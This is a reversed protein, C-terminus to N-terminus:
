SSQTQLAQRIESLLNVLYDWFAGPLRQMEPSGYESILFHAVIALIAFTVLSKGTNKVGRVFRSPPEPRPPLEFTPLRLAPETRETQDGFGPGLRRKILEILGDIDHEWSRDNIVYAQQRSIFVLSDPLTSPSPMTAGGVLIPLIWIDRAAAAEIERRVWDTEDDIRRRGDPDAASLWRRGIVILLAEARALADSLTRTFDDGPQIEDDRFIVADGFADGLDDGIRGAFGQSDFRRYSLFLIPSKHAM